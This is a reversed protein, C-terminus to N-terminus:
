DNEVIDDHKVLLDIVIKVIKINWRNKKTAWFVFIRAKRGTGRTGLTGTLKGSGMSNCSVPPLWVGLLAEAFSDIGVGRGRLIM